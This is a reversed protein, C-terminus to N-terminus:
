EQASHPANLSLIVEKGGSFFRSAGVLPDETSGPEVCGSQLWVVIGDPKGDGTIDIGEDPRPGYGVLVYADVAGDASYHQLYSFNGPADETWGFPVEHANREAPSTSLYPNAYFGPDCYGLVTLENVHQPYARSPTDVSYRETQLQVYHINQITLYIADKEMLLPAEVAQNSRAQFFRTEANEEYRAIGPSLGQVISAAGLLLLKLLPQM